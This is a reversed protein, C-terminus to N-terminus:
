GKEACLKEYLCIICSKPLAALSLLVYQDIQTYYKCRSPLTALHQLYLLQAILDPHQFSDVLEDLWIRAQKKMVACLDLEGESTVHQTADFVVQEILVCLASCHVVDGRLLTLLEHHERLCRLYGVITMMTQRAELNTTPHRGRGGGEGGGGGDESTYQEANERLRLSLFPHIGLTVIFQLLCRLANSDDEWLKDCPVAVIASSQSVSSTSSSNGDSGDGSGGSVGDSKKECNQHLISLCAVIKPLIDFSLEMFVDEVKLARVGDDELLKISLGANHGETRAAVVNSYLLQHLPRAKLSEYRARQVDSCLKDVNGDKCVLTRVCSMLCRLDEEM